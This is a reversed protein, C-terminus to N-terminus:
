QRLEQAVEAIVSDWDGRGPQRFLRATPYWPSDRRERMWCWHSVQPLLVWVPKGLAGALHAWATDVTIVLDLAAVIEATRRFDEGPNTFQTLGASLALEEANLEKQLGVFRVGPVQLLPAISAFPISRERDGRYSSSGRWCLGM